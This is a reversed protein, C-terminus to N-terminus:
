CLDLCVMRAHHAQEVFAEELGGFQQDVRARIEEGEGRGAPLLDSRVVQFLAEGLLYLSAAVHHADERVSRCDPPEDACDEGLLVVRPLDVTASQGNKDAILM